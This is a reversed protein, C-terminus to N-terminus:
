RSPEMASKDEYMAKDARALVSELNKDQAPDYIAFGMAASVCEWESLYTDARMGQRFRKFLVDRSVFDVNKLIVVFEDGGVRYVPSHTFTNCILRCGNKLYIDGKEHGYTDNITKLHNLDIMVVGFEAVGAAIEADLTKTTADFATKNRVGTLADKNALNNARTIEQQMTEMRVASSVLKDAYAKMDESLSVISDALAELEDGSHIDPRNLIMAEPNTQLRSKEAFDETTQQIMKLPRIMRRNLWANMFLLMVAAVAVIGGAILLGYQRMASRIASTSLGATLLAVGEGSENVIAVAGDYSMGFGTHSTSFKIERRNIMDDYIVPIFGAPYREGISEGLQPAPFDLRSEGAREEPLLGSAVALVDYRDGEKVPRCIVIYDLACNQRVDDMFATLSRLGETPTGTAMSKELEAVDMQSLTLDVVDQIRTRYQAEMGMEFVRFSIGAILLGLILTFVLCGMLIQRSLHHRYKM